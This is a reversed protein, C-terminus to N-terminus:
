GSERVTRHLGHLMKIIESLDKELDAYDQPKLYGVQLAIQLQTDVEAASGLAIDLHHKLFTDTRYGYGEAINSPISVAARRLQNTLGYIESHPFAQTMKYLDVTFKIGRQWVILDRHSKIKEM